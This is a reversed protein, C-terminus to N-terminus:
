PILEDSLDAIDCASQPRALTTATAAMNALGAPAESLGIMGSALNAPSIPAEALCYGVGAQEM